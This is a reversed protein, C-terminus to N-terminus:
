FKVSHERKTGVQYVRKLDILVLHTNLGHDKQDPYILMIILRIIMMMSKRQFIISFDSLCITKRKVINIITKKLSLSLDIRGPGFLKEKTKRYRLKQIATLQADDLFEDDLEWLTEEDVGSEVFKSYLSVLGHKQLM